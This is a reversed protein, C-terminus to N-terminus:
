AKRSYRRYWKLKPSRRLAILHLKDLRQRKRRKRGAHPYSEGKRVTCHEYLL